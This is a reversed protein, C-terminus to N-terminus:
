QEADYGDDRCPQYRCRLHRKAQSEPRQLRRQHEILFAYQAQVLKYVASRGVGHLVKGLLALRDAQPKDCAFGRAKSAPITLMTRLAIDSM